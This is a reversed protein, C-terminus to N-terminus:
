AQTLTVSIVNRFQAGAGGIVNDDSGRVIWIGFTNPRPKTGTSDTGIFNGSVHSKGPAGLRIGIGHFNQIVLGRVVCESDCRLGDDGGVGM